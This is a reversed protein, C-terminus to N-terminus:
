NIKQPKETSIFSLHMHPILNLYSNIKMSVLDRSIYLLFKLLTSIKERLNKRGQVHKMHAVRKHREIGRHYCDENYQITPLTPLM